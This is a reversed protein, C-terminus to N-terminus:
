LSRLILDAQPSLNQSWYTKLEPDKESKLALFKYIADEVVKHPPLKLIEGWAHLDLLAMPSFQLSTKRRPGESFNRYSSLEFARQSIDQFDPLRMLCSLYVTTMTRILASMPLGPYDKLIERMGRRAQEPLYFQIQFIERKEQKLQLLWQHFRVRAEQTWIQAGCDICEDMEVPFQRKFHESMVVRRKTRAHPCDKLTQQENVNM